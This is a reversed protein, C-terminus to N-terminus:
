FLTFINEFLFFIIKSKFFLFFEKLANDLNFLYRDIDLFFFHNQWHFM